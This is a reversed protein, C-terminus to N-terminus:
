NIVAVTLKSQKLEEIQLKFKKELKSHGFWISANAKNASSLVSWYNLKSKLDIHAVKLHRYANAGRQCWSSPNGSQVDSEIKRDDVVIPAKLTMAPNNSTKDDYVIAFGVSQDDSSFLILLWFDDATELAFFEELWSRSRAINTIVHWETM